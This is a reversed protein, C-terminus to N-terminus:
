SSQTKYTSIFPIYIIFFHLLAAIEMGIFYWPWEGFLLPNEAIPKTCMYMYNANLIWNITGITPILLQSWLFIKWWSNKRPKMDLLLTIYLASLFIGGHSLYYEFFLLGETGSTFEPSLFSHFAGPLGWYYLCEYAWQKRWFLVIGSLIASLGCLHLPLNSEITWLNLHNLYFHIGITRFILIAGILKALLERNKKNISKGLFILLGIIGITILNTQWWTSSFIELTEHPIM